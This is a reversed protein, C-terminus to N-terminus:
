PAAKRLLIEIRRNEAAEPHNPLKLHHDAFGEVAEIRSEPVGGRKLMYLAMQARAASLRWNDYGGGRYPRADTYGRLVIRGPTKKLILAIRDMLHVLKPNPAASGIAFMGFNESDTLSILVGENTAKVDLDPTKAGMTRTMARAIARSLKEAQATEAAKEAAKAAAKKKAASEAAAAAKAATAAPEAALAKEAKAQAPPSKSRAVGPAPSTKAAGSEKQAKAAPTKPAGGPNLAASATGSAGAAPEAGSSKFPNRFADIAGGAGKAGEQARGQETPVKGAIQDLAAYPNEFLTEDDTMAQAGFKKNPEKGREEIRGERRGPPPTKGPAGQEAGPNNDPNKTEKIGKKHKSFDELKVPNFYRAIITQQDKNTSNLIWLVLFFAMMATVFDAYAIKWAGGHHDDGGEIRRRVIIVEQREDDIM